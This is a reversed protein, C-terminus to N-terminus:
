CNSQPTGAAPPAICVTTSLSVEPEGRDKFTLEAFAATYDAAVRPTACQYGGQRRKCGTSSWIASRFDRTPSQAVWLRVRKPKRDSQVNVKLRQADPAFSWSPLPLQERRAAYRHLAAVSGIL